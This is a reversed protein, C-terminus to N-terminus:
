AMRRPAIVRLTGYQVVIDAADAARVRRDRSEPLERVLGAAVRRGRGLVAEGFHGADGQVAHAAAPGDHSVGDDDDPLAEDALQVGADLRREPALHQDGVQM